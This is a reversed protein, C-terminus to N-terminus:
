GKVWGNVREDSQEEGEVWVFLGEAKWHSKYSLGNPGLMKSLGKLDKDPISTLDLQPPHNIDPKPPKIKPPKPDPLLNPPAKNKSQKLKWAELEAVM